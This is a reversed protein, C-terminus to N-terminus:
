TPSEQLWLTDNVGVDHTAVHLCLELGILLYPELNTSFNPTM